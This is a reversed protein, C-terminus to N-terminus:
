PATEPPALRRRPFVALLAGLSALTVFLGLRVSAPRYEALLGRETGSLHVAWLVGWAPVIPVEELHRRAERSTRWNFPDALPGDKRDWRYVHWGPAIIESIVMWRRAPPDLAANVCIANCLHWVGRSGGALTHVAGWPGPPLLPGSTQTGHSRLSAERTQEPSNQAAALIEPSIVAPSQTWTRGVSEGELAALSFVDGTEAHRSLTALAEDSSRVGILTTPLWMERGSNELTCFVWDGGRLHEATGDPRAAEIPVFPPGLPTRGPSLWTSVGLLRHLQPNNYGLTQFLKEWRRLVIPHYGTITRAGIVLPANSMEQTVLLWRGPPVRTLLPSTGRGMAALIREYRDPPPNVYRRVVRAQDAMALLALGAALGWQLSAARQARARIRRFVASWGIAALTCAAFTALVFITAPSRWNRWGPVWDYLLRYLPTYEGLALVTALLVLALLALTRACRGAPTIGEGGAGEGDLPSPSRGRRASPWPCSAVLALAIGLLTVLGPYDSVLREGWRGRYTGDVSSGFLGPWVLEVLEEPPYSTEVAEEWAVGHARNSIRKMEAAPLIQVLALASGCLFTIACLRLPRLSLALRGPSTGPRPRSAALARGLALGGILAVTYYAIQAHQTLIQMALCVAAWLASRVSARGGARVSAGLIWPMWAIAEFKALHGPYVLTTVHGSMQFLVGGLLAAAPALGLARGWLTFGLGAWAHHLLYQLTFAFAIPAVLAIWHPPYWPTWGAAAVWPWGAFLHHNWLPILGAERVMTWGHDFFLIDHAVTDRGYPFLGPQLCDQFVWLALGLHVCAAFPWLPRPPAPLPEDM